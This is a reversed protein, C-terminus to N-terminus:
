VMLCDVIQEFRQKFMYEDMRCVETDLATKITDKLSKEDLEICYIYNLDKIWEYQGRLKHNYTNLVICPTGLLAAFIMGHLRDTIMLSVSEILKWMSYLERKRDQRSIMYEKVTDTKIVNREFVQELTKFVLKKEMETYIGEVDNRMCILAGKRQASGIDIRGLSFVIDPTLFKNCILRNSITRYSVSDRFFAYLNSHSNFVNITIDFQKRGMKNNPFYVTQPFMIIRNNPFMKIIKRRFLEERYYEVGINGGGKLTIIDESRINEKINRIYKLTDGVLVEYVNYEPLNKKIMKIHAYTMAHDGLNSYDTSLLVFAKKKSGWEKKQPFVWYYATQVCCLIRILFIRLWFPIHNKIYKIIKIHNWM